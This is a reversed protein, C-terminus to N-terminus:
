WKLLGRTVLKPDVELGSSCHTEGNGGRQLGAGVLHDLSARSKRNQCLVSMGLYCRLTRKKLAHVSLRLRETRAPPTWKSNCRRLLQAGISEPISILGIRTKAINARASDSAPQL